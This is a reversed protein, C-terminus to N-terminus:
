IHYMVARRKALLEYVCWNCILFKMGVDSYAFKEPVFGIMRSDDWASFYSNWTDAYKFGDKTQKIHVTSDIGDADRCSYGPSAHKGVLGCLECAIVYDKDVCWKCDCTVDGVDAPRKSEEFGSTGFDFGRKMNEKYDVYRNRSDNADLLINFLFWTVYNEKSAIISTDLTNADIITASM